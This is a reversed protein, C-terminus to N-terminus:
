VAVIPDRTVEVEYYTIKNSIIYDPRGADGKHAAKFADSVSWKRFDDLSEWRTMVVVEDHDKLRETKLVELGLFGSFFEIKGTKNFREILKHSNGLTINSTNTVIVM